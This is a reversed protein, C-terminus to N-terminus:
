AAAGDMRERPRHSSRGVVSRVQTIMWELEATTLEQHCTFQFVRRSLDASTPCVDADMGEWRYEGFRIVPVGAAKLGAFDREPDGVVLPFVQPVVGEPLAPFLPRCGPLDGLAELMRAYHARRRAVIRRTSALAVIAQSSRSMRRHVLGPEFGWGGLSRTLPQATLPKQASRRRLKRLTWDKVRMPGGLVLRMLGLRRYEFAQELNNVLAKGEFWAGGRELDLTAIDPRRSVLIGGDTIPFFKWASGIAYDGHSGPPCGDWRGFWAHACDEILVLRHRDCLARLPRMEQPFGFYHTVVLARTNPTIRSEVDSLDVRTDAEIRYFAPSAGRWVVPEIMSICHYAPLLVSDGTGIGAHVLALGLAVSGRNVYRAVGADVISSAPSERSGVFAGVSLVAHKPIKERPYSTGVVAPANAM